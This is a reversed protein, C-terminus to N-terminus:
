FINDEIIFYNLKLNDLKNKLDQNILLILNIKLDYKKELINDKTLINKLIKEDEYDLILKIKYLKELKVINTKKLTESCSNSYARILGSSGLKIGGFYRIVFCAIYNLKQKKLVDLIPIGATKSPENDDFCKEINDIIYAYCIHTADKYKIKLNDYYNNFETKNKVLYLYTIFRSKNIILESVINENIIM